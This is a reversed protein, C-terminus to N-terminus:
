AYVIRPKKMAIVLVFEWSNSNNRNAELCFQSTPVFIQAFTTRIVRLPDVDQSVFINRLNFDPRYERLQQLHRHIERIPFLCFFLLVFCILLCFLGFIFLHCEEINQQSFCCSKRNKARYFCAFFAVDFFKIKRETVRGCARKM